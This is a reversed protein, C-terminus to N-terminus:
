FETGDFEGSSIGAAILAIYGITFVVSLVTGIIGMIFGAQAMGRGTQGPALDIEKKGMNGLIIAPIGTFLGCCVLSLIGLIMSWLAKQNQQAGGGYAGV